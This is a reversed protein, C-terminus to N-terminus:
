SILRRISIEHIYRPQHDEPDEGRLPRAVAMLDAAGGLYRVHAFPAADAHAGEVSLEPRHVGLSQDCRDAGLLDPTARGPDGVTVVPGM